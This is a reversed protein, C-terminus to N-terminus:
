KGQVVGTYLPIGLEPQQWRFSLWLTELNESKELSAAIHIKLFSIDQYRFM